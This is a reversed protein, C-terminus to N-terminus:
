EGEESEGDFDDEEQGGFEGFSKIESGDEGQAQSQGQSQGEGEETLDLTFEEVTEDDKTATVSVQEEGEDIVIQYGKVEITTKM